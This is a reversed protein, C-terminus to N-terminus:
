HMGEKHPYNLANVGLGIARLRDSLLKNLALQEMLQKELTQNDKRLARNAKALAEIREQARKKPKVPETTPLAQETM